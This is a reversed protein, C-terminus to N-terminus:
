LRSTLTSLIEDLVADLKKGVDTALFRLIFFGHKQLIADKRRDRRWAEEDALHQPGDIEVVLRADACLFDAELSGQQDFPIPLKANLGFKGRTAVLSELRRYLFAESASRARAVGEAGSPPAAAARVFLDALENDVGDRILRRVSAAYDRKWEPDIPLPVGPPWGPIASAPLLLSYGVAEYGACRRDFMRSLMPVNLDAYDYVRAETKGEHLRHLRGVYQAITGRWSVPMALFLTDLQPDDFGEGVFKGTALLVLNARDAALGDLAARLAKKGMGGQLRIVSAGSQGLLAALLDMHETRETLVLPHRSERLCASVDACIMANRLDDHVLAGCLQQFEVRADADPESAARFATPRVMVHHEFPRAAAQARADVRHRVPGCQMFIIPHHGDKRAVTASLGTVFRAKARRAVLEFSRASLHHCEDVVLHGYDAVVDDVTGNRVLSQLLAVDLTGTLKRRGGGLRGISKTPVGLFQSLREVWQEMLQQRHVLVLTNVARRSILWAALVTKGFATTAALVGTDHALM